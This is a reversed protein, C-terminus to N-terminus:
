MVQQSINSLSVILTHHYTHCTLANSCSVRPDYGEPTPNLPVSGSASYLSLTCTVCSTDNSQTIVTRVSVLCIFPERRADKTVKMRGSLLLNAASAAKEEM